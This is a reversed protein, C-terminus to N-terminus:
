EKEHEQILYIIKEIDAKDKEDVGSLYDKIFEEDMMVSMFFIREGCDLKNLLKKDDSLQDYEELKRIDDLCYGRYKIKRVLSFNIEFFEKATKFPVLQFITSEITYEKKNSNKIVDKTFTVIDEELSDAFEVNLHFCLEIQLYQLIEKKINRRKDIGVYDIIKSITVDDFKNYLENLAIDLMDDYYDIMVRRKAVELLDDQTLLYSYDIPYKFNLIELAEDLSINDNYVIVSEDDFTHVKYYVTELQYFIYTFDNFKIDAYKCGERIKNKSYKLGLWKSLNFLEKETLVGYITVASDIFKYISIKKSMIGGSCSKLCKIPM